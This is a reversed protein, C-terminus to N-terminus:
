KGSILPDDMWRKPSVHIGPLLSAPFMTNPDIYAERSQGRTAASLVKQANVIYPLPLYRSRGCKWGSPAWLFLEAMSLSATNRFELLSVETIFTAGYLPSNAPPRFPDFLYLPAVTPFELQCLRSSAPASFQPKGVDSM